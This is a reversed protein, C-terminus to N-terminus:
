HVLEKYFKKIAKQGKRSFVYHISASVIISIVVNIAIDTLPDGTRYMFPISPLGYQGIGLCASHFTIYGVTRKKTRKKM